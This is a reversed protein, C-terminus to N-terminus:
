GDRRDIGGGSPGSAPAIVPGMMCRAAADTCGRGVRGVRSPPPGVPPAAPVGRAWPCPRAVRKTGAGGERRGLSGATRAPFGSRAHRPVRPLGALRPRRALLGPAAIRPVTAALPRRLRALSGRVRRCGSGGRSGTWFIRRSGRLAGWSPPARRAPRRTGVGLRPGRSAARERVTWGSSAPGRSAALGKPGDAAQRAAPAQALERCRPVLRVGAGERWGSRPPRAM